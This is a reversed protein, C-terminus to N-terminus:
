PLGPAPPTVPTPSLPPPPAPDATFPDDPLEGPRAPPTLLKAWVEGAPLTFVLGAPAPASTAARSRDPLPNGVRLSYRLPKDNMSWEVTLRPETLGFAAPPPGAYHLYRPTKFDALSAVMPGVQAPDFGSDDYGPEPQWATRGEQRGLALSRAPWRLVVRRVEEPKFKFVTRDLLEAELAPVYGPGILFVRGDGEVNAFFSKTGPKMRGVRLAGQGTAAPTSGPRAASPPPTTSLGADAVTAWKLRAAPAVLGFAKGDGVADSEWSEARLQSLMTVLATVAGDDAPVQLPAVVRWHGAADKPGPANVTVDYAGRELTMSSISAPNLAVATRDRFAFATLPLDKLLDDPLALISTDGPVMGYVTRKLLDHRGIALEFRPDAAPVPHDGAGASPSRAPTSADAQWGRVRFRPPDLKPDPVAAPELFESSKLGGLRMLLTQVPASDAPGNISGLLVWGAATRELDFVHGPTDVRLRNIRESAFDLVKQSRLGNPGPMAERLTKADLRVVNGSGSRTAFVQGGKGPVDKGLLLTQPAGNGDFPTLTLTLTPADLGYPSLDKVGDAVFGDAGDAVRLASLEAVLGEAKDDDAPAKVPAALAWHREERVLDTVRAPDAQAIKLGKVKFSPVRFLSEDRWKVPPLLLAGLLRLDVVEIGTGSGSPGGPRVHLRDKLASGVDLTALPADGAKGYLRVTAAPKDLGYPAPDGEITGSDPDKRLAKLNAVLTEVLRPDAPADVPRTIQWHGEPRREVVLPAQGDPRDVEVRSVDLVPTDVLDPLLRNLLEQRERHTLVKAHDAWWLVGLGAAFLAFLVISTRHRM